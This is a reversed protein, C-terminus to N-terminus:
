NIGKASYYAIVFTRELDAIADFDRSAFADGNLLEQHTKEALLHLASKIIFLEQATMKEVQTNM